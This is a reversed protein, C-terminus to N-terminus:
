ALRPLNVQLLLGKCYYCLGKWYDHWPFLAHRRFDLTREASGKDGHTFYSLCKCLVVIVFALLSSALALLAVAVGMASERIGM